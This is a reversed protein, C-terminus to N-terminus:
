IRCSNPETIHNFELGRHKNTYIQSTYPSPKTTHSPSQLLCNWRSHRLKADRGSPLNVQKSHLFPSHIQLGNWWGDTQQKARKSGWARQKRWAIVSTEAAFWCASLHCAARHGTAPTVVMLVTDQFEGAGGTAWSSSKAAGLVDAGGAAQLSVQLSGAFTCFQKITNCCRQNGASTQLHLQPGTLQQQKM